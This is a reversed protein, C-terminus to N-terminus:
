EDGHQTDKASVQWDLWASRARAFGAELAAGDDCKLAARLASLRAQYADIEALLATKNALAIDRWMEPHSGALRAPDSLGKGAFAFLEAANPRAALEDMLAYILMHPLHSVAAYLADHAAPTMLHVQAGCAQWGLLVHQHADEATENLPTLIVRRQQYLTASAAQAGSRDSGAIPHGPVFRPLLPGLHARAAAVVDGKTSGGDTIVCNPALRDAHAALTAFVAAMQGVPTAILVCDAGVLAAELPLAEDIVGHSVAGDLNTKSRGVGIVKAAAGAAKLGLAFSGGILGVGVVVVRQFRVSL